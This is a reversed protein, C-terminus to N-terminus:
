NSYYGKVKAPRFRVELAQTSEQDKTYIEMSFLVNPSPPPVDFEFMIWDHAYEDNRIPLKHFSGEEKKSVQSSSRGFSSSDAGYSIEIPEYEVNNLTLISSTKIYQEARFAKVNLKVIFTPNNIRADSDKTKDEITFGAFKKKEIIRDANNTEFSIEMVGNSNVFGSNNWGVIKGQSYITESKMACSSVVLALLCLLIRM